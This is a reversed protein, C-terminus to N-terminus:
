DINKLIKNQVKEMRKKENEKSDSFGLLHLIGHILLLALEKKFPQGFQRAQKKAQEASIIIDGLMVKGKEDKENLPFAIVDTPINRNFFRKNYEKIVKNNTLLLNIECNEKYNLFELTKLAINKFFKVSFPVRVDKIINFSLYDKKM